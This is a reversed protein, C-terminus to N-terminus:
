VYFTLFKSDYFSSFSITFNVPWENVSHLVNLVDLDETWEYNRQQSADGSNFNKLSNELEAYVNKADADELPFMSLDNQNDFNSETLLLAVYIHIEFIERAFFFSVNRYTPIKNSTLKLAHRTRQTM